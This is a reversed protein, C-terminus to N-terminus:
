IRSIIRIIMLVHRLMLKRRGGFIGLWLYAYIHTHMSLWTWSKMVGHVTAWRAGKDMPNDLCSYQLPNDNGGGPCKGLESLSRIWTEQPKAMAPLNKVRQPVQSAAYLYAHGQAINDSQTHTSKPVSILLLILLLHDHTFCFSSKNKLSSTYYWM